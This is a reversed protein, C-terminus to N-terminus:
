YALLGISQENLVEESAQQLKNDNTGHDPGPGLSSEPTISERDLAKSVDRALCPMSSLALDAKANAPERTRPTMSRDCDDLSKPITDLRHPEAVKGQSGMADNALDCVTESVTCFTPPSQVWGVTCAMPIGILQPEGPHRPPIISLRLSDRARLFLRYFGDKIDHKSTRVPGCKPNAHRVHCLVRDLAHGFQM